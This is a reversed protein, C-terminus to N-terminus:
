LYIASAVLFFLLIAAMDNVTTIFIGTAVAPDLGLARLAFPVVAGLTGAFLIVLFLACLCSRVPHFSPYPFPFFPFSPSRLSSRRVSPPVPVPM